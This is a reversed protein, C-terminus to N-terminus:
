LIIHWKSRGETSPHIGDTTLYTTDSLIKQGDLLKWDDKRYKNFIDIICENYANFDSMFEKDNFYLSHYRYITTMFVPVDKEAIKAVLYDIRHRFEDPKIKKLMNVGLELYAYDFDNKVLMDTVEKECFCSGGLGKNLINVGLLRGVNEIYCYPNSVAGTGHTISSGYALMTKPPMEEKDPLRLIGNVNDIDCLTIICNHPCIRWVNKDFTNSKFFSNDVKGFFDPKRLVLTTHQGAKLEYKGAFYNGSYVCVNGDAAEPM